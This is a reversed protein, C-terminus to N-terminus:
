IAEAKAVNREPLSATLSRFLLWRGSNDITIWMESNPRQLDIPVFDRRLQVQSGILTLVRIGVDDRDLLEDNYDIECADFQVAVLGPLLCGITTCRMRIASWDAARPHNM